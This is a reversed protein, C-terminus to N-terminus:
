EKSALIRKINEPMSQSKFNNGVCVWTTKAIVLTLNDKKIEQIFKLSARRVDETHTYIRIIDQYRAPAKYTVELNAVVFLIGKNSLEKLNIGKHYCFETRAEELHKLYNAYYVVGGCDTDHYYIRKEIYFESM